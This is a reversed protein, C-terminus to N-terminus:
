HTTTVSRTQSKAVMEAAPREANANGARESALMPLLALAAITSAMFLWIKPSVAQRCFRRMNPTLLSVPRAYYNNYDISGDRLQRIEYPQMAKEVRNDRPHRTKRAASFAPM